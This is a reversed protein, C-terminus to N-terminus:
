LKRYITYQDFISSKHMKYFYFFGLCLSAIYPLVPDRSDYWWNDATEDNMSSSTSFSLYPTVTHIVSVTINRCINLLQYNM